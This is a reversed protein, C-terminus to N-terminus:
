AGDGGWELTCARGRQAARGCPVGGHTRREAVGRQQRAARGCAVGGDDDRWRQAAAGSSGRREAVGDRWLRTRVRWPLGRQRRGVERACAGLRGRVGESWGKARAASTCVRVCEM